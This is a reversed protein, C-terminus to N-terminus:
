NEIVSHEEDGPWVIHETIGHRSSHVFRHKPLVQITLLDIDLDGGSDSLKRVIVVPSKPEKRDLSTAV